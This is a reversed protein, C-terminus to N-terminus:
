KKVQAAAVLPSYQSVGRPVAVEASRCPSPSPASTGEEKSLCVKHFHEPLPQPVQPGNLYIQYNFLSRILIEQFHGVISLESLFGVGTPQETCAHHLSLAEVEMQVSSNGLPKYFLLTQLLLFTPKYDLEKIQSLVTNKTKTMLM